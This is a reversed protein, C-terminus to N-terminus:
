FTGRFTAMAGGDTPVLAVDMTVNPGHEHELGDLAYGVFIASGLGQLVLAGGLGENGGGADFAWGALIGSAVLSSAGWVLQVAAWGEDRRTLGVSTAIVFTVDLAATGILAGSLPLAVEYGDSARAVSPAAPGAALALAVGLAALPALRPTARTPM